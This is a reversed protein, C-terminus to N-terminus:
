PPQGRTEQELAALSALLDEHANAQVWRRILLPLPRPLQVPMTTCVGPVELLMDRLQEPSTGPEPICILRGFPSTQESTEDRFGAM